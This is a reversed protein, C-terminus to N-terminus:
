SKRFDSFISQYNTLEHFERDFDMEQVSNLYENVGGVQHIEKDNLFPLNQVENRFLYFRPNKSFFIQHFKNRM